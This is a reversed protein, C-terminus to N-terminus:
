RAISWQEFRNNRIASDDCGITGGHVESVEFVDDGDGVMLM